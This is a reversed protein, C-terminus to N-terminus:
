CSGPGSELSPSVGKGMRTAEWGWPATMVCSLLTGQRGGQGGQRCRLLAAACCREGAEVDVM